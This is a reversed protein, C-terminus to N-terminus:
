APVLSTWRSIMPLDYPSHAGCGGGGLNPVLLGARPHRADHQGARVLAVRLVARHQVFEVVGVPPGDPVFGDADDDQGRVPGVERGTVVQPDVGGVVHGTDGRAGEGAAEGRGSGLAPVGGLGFEEQSQAQAPPVDGPGGDRGHVTPDDAAAQLQDPRAVQDDGGVVGHEVVRDACETTRDGLVEYVGPFQTVTAGLLHQEGAFGDIGEIGLGEAHDVTDHGPRIQFGFCQRQGLPDRRARTEADPQGFARDVVGQIQLTLPRRHLPGEVGVM